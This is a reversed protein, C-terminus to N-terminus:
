YVIWFVYIGSEVKRPIWPIAVFYRADVMRKNAAILVLMFGGRHLFAEEMTM